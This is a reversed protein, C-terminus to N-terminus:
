LPNRGESRYLHQRYNLSIFDAVLCVSQRLWSRGMKGDRKHKSYGPITNFNQVSFNIQIIYLSVPEECLVSANEMVFISNPICHGKQIDRSICLYVTNDTSLTQLTLWIIYIYIYIYM